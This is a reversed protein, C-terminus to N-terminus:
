GNNNAIIDASAGHIYAVLCTAFLINDNQIVLASIIGNLVDRMGGSAMGANGSNNIITHEGDCILAGVGKLLFVGGYQKAIASVATFRDAEISAVDCYLLAAVEKPHPTLIWHQYDLKVRSLLILGDGGNHGQCCLM